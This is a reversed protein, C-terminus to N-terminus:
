NESLMVGGIADQRPSRMVSQTTPRTDDTRTRVISEAIGNMDITMNIRPVRNAIVVVKRLTSTRRRIKM